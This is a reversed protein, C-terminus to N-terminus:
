AMYIILFPQVTNSIGIEPYSQVGSTFAKRIKLGVNLSREHKFVNFWNQLKGNLPIIFNTFWTTTHLKIPQNAILTNTDSDTVRIDVTQNQKSNSSKKIYLHLEDRKVTINKKEHTMKVTLKLSTNSTELFVCILYTLSM